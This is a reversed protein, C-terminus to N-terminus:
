KVNKNQEPYWAPACPTFLTCDGEWFYKEQPNLIAVDGEGLLVKETETSLSVSGKVIYTLETCNENILWNQQPHRGKIEVLAFNIKENKTPFEHAIVNGVKFTQSQDKKLYEM